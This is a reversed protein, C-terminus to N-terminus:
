IFNDINEDESDNFLGVDKEEFSNNNSNTNFSYKNNKNNKEELATENTTICTPNLIKKINSIYDEWTQKFEDFIFKDMDTSDLPFM